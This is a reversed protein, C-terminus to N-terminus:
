RVTTARCPMPVWTPFSCTWSVHSRHRAPLQVSQGVVGRHFKGSHSFCHHHLVIQQGTTGAAGGDLRGVRPSEAFAAPELISFGVLGHTDILLGSDDQCHHSASRRSVFGVSPAASPSRGQGPAMGGTGPGGTSDLVGAFRPSNGGPFGMASEAWGHPVNHCMGAASRYQGRDSARCGAM